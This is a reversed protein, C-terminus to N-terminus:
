LVITNHFFFKLHAITSLGQDFLGHGLCLAVTGLEFKIFPLIILRM